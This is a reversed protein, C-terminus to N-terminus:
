LDKLLGQNKAKEAADHPDDCDMLRRLRRKMNDVHTNTVGLFDAVETTTKGELTLIAVIKEYANLEISTM